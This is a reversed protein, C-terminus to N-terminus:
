LLGHRAAIAVAQTRTRANLREQAGAIHKRVASASIGLLRAIEQDHLGTSLARLVELCRATIAAAGEDQSARARIRDPIWPERGDRAEAATITSRVTTADAEDALLYGDAGAAISRRILSPDESGLFLIVPAGLARARGVIEEPDDGSRVGIVVARPPAGLSAALESADGISALARAGSRLARGALRALGSRFLPRPDIAFIEPQAISPSEREDHGEGVEDVPRLNREPRGAVPATARARPRDDVETIAARARPRDDV